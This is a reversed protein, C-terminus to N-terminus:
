STQWGRLAVAAPHPTVPNLYDERKAVCGACFSLYWQIINKSINQIRMQKKLVEQTKDRGPHNNDDHIKQLILFMDEMPVLRMLKGCKGYKKYLVLEGAPPEVRAEYEKEIRYDSTFEKKVRGEKIGILREARAKYERRSMQLRIANSRALM